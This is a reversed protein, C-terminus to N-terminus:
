KNINKLTILLNYSIITNESCNDNSRLETEFFKPLYYTIDKNMTKLIM